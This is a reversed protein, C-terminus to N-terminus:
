MPRMKELVPVLKKTRQEKASNSHYRKVKSGVILEMKRIGKLIADGAEEKKKLPFGHM